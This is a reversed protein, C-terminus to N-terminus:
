ARHAPRSGLVEQPALIRRRKLGPIHPEFKYQSSSQPDSGLTRSPVEAEHHQLAEPQMRPRGKAASHHRTWKRVGPATGHLRCCNTRLRVPVAPSRALQFSDGREKGAVVETKREASDPRREITGAVKLGRAVAAIRVYDPKLSVAGPAEAAPLASLTGAAENGVIDARRTGCGHGGRDDVGSASPALCPQVEVEHRMRGRVRRDEVRSAGEGCASAGLEGM